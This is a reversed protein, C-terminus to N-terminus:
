SGDWHTTAAAYYASLVYGPEQDAKVTLVARVTGDPTDVKSAGAYHSLPERTREDLANLAFNKKFATQVAATKGDAPASCVVEEHDKTLSGPARVGVAIVASNQPHSPTSIVAAVVDGLCGAIQQFHPADLLSDGRGLAASLAASNPSAAFHDSTVVVQDLANLVHLQRAVKSDPDITNDDGFSLGDIGDFSRPKAGLAKLKATVADADIAGDIRVATAPPEGVTVARDATFVDLDIATKLIVSVDALEDFGVGTVHNWQPNMTDKTADIVGLERLRAIDGYSVTKPVGASVSVSGLADALGGDSTDSGGGSSGCATVTALLATGLVAGLARTKIVM